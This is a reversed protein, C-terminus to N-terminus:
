LLDPLNHCMTIRTKYNWSLNASRASEERFCLGCGFHYTATCEYRTAALQVVVVTFLLVNICSHVNTLTKKKQNYFVKLGCYDWCDYSFVFIHSKM